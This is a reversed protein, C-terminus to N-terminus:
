KILRIQINLKNIFLYKNSLLGSYLEYYKFKFSILRIQPYIDNELILTISLNYFIM